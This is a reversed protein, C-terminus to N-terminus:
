ITWLDYKKINKVQNQRINSLYQRKNTQYGAGGDQFTNQGFSYEGTISVDLPIRIVVKVPTDFSCAGLYESALTKKTM